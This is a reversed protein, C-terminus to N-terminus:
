GVNDSETGNDSRPREESTRDEKELREVNWVMVPERSARFNMIKRPIMQGATLRKPAINILTTGGGGIM